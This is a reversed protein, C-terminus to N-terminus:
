NQRAQSNTSLCGQSTEDAEAIAGALAVCVAVPARPQEAGPAYELTEAAVGRADLRAPVVERRPDVVEFPLRVGAYVGTVRVRTLDVDVARECRNGLDFRLAVHDAPMVQERYSRLAVDLCGLRMALGDSPARLLRGPEYVPLSCASLALALLTSPASRM